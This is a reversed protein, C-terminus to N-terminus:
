GLIQFLNKNDLILLLLFIEIMSCILYTLLDLIWKLSMPTKDLPIKLKPTCDVTPAIENGSYGTKQDAPCRWSM